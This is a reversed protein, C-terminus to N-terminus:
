LRKVAFQHVTTIIHSSSGLLCPSLQLARLLENKPIDKNSELRDHFCCLPAAVNLMARQVLAQDRGRQEVFKKRNAPIYTLVNKDLIPNVPVLM